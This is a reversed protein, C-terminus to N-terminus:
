LGRVELGEPILKLALNAQVPNCAFAINKNTPCTVYVIQCDAWREFDGVKVSRFGDRYLYTHSAVFAELVAKIELDTIQGASHRLIADCLALEDFWARETPMFLDFEEVTVFPHSREQESRNSMSDFFLGIFKVVREVTATTISSCFVERLDIPVAATQITQATNTM